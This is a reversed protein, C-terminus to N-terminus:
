SPPSFADRGALSGIAAGIYFLDTEQPADAELRMLVTELIAGGKIDRQAIAGFQLGRSFDRSLPGVKTNLDAFHERIEPTIHDTGDSPLEAM